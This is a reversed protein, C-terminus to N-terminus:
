NIIAVAGRYEFGHGTRIRYPYYGVPLKGGKYRGDWPTPYGSSYYILSGWRDYVSIELDPFDALGSLVWVDNIGDGNPTFADPILLRVDVVVTIEHKIICGQPDTIELSYVTTQEPSADPDPIDAANLGYAPSWRYAYEDGVNGNLRVAIGKGTRIRGPLSPQPPASVVVKRSASGQACSLVGTSITYSIDHTGRGALSPTFKNGSVGKGAFTGGTPYGALVYASSDGLCFDPIPDLTITVKELFELQYSESTGRCGNADTARVTYTGSDGTKYSESVAGSLETSNRYWQYIHGTLTATKLMVTDGKCATHAAPGGSIVPQPSNLRTLELPDSVSAACGSLPDEVRVTYKGEKETVLEPKNQGPVIVENLMWTYILGPVSETALKTTKGECVTHGSALLNVKGGIVAIKVESSKVPRGCATKYAIDITYTGSEKVRLSPKGAHLIFRGDKRWQYVWDPRTDTFLEIEEGYCITASTTGEPFGSISIRPEPPTIDPCDIVLFQYDRRTSGIWQGKRYEDVQVTFVFLGLLTPTVTLIGSNSDISLEPNGNMVKDAAYGPIWDVLPYASMGRYNEESPNEIIVFSNFPTVLSYRLEDGDADHADFNLMFPNNVCLYEGNLENFVPSSNLFPAGNRILPPFRLQFLVGTRGPMVINSLATNRCCDAWVIYYGGPDNYESPNLKVEAEYVRRGTKLRRDVACSDNFYSFDTQGFNALDLLFYKMKQNDRTRYIMMGQNGPEYGGVDWYENQFIILRILYRGPTPDLAEMEINGGMIHDARSEAGCLLFILLATLSRIPQYAFLSISMYPSFAIETIM